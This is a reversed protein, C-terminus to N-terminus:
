QPLDKMAATLLTAVKNAGAKAQALDSIKLAALAATNAERAESLAKTAPAGRAVLDPIIGNGMGQCPNMEAASFNAGKSGELCNVVHALHSRVSALADSQAAFTAHTQAAKFQDMLASGSATGTPPNPDYGGGYGQAFAAVTMVLISAGAVFWAAMRMM